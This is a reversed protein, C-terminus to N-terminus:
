EQTEQSEPKEDPLRANVENKIHTGSKLMDAGMCSVSIIGVSM